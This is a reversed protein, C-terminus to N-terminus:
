PAASATTNQAPGWRAFEGSSRRFYLEIAGTGKYGTCNEEIFDDLPQGPMNDDVGILAYRTVETNPPLHARDKIVKLDTLAGTELNYRGLLFGGNKIQEPLVTVSIVGAGTDQGTGVNEM